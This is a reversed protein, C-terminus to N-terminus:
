PLRSQGLAVIEAVIQQLRRFDHTKTYVRCGQGACGVFAASEAASTTLIVAPITNLSLDGAIELLTEWGNKLPLNLDLVIVDPRPAEAWDGQRRLFRLAEEGDGAVHVAAASQGCAVAETFFVVDAPNDEVLLIAPGCAGPATM